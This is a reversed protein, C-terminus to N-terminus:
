SQIKVITSMIPSGLNVNGTHYKEGFFDLYQNYPTQFWHLIKGIKWITQQTWRFNVIKISELKRNTQCNFPPPSTAMNSSLPSNRAGLRFTHNPSTSASVMNRQSSLMNQTTGSIEAKLAPQLHTRCGRCTLMNKPSLINHKMALTNARKPWSNSKIVQTLLYPSSLSSVFYPQVSWHVFFLCVSAEIFVKSHLETKM